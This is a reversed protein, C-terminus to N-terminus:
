AGLNFHKEATEHKKIDRERIGEDANYDSQERRLLEIINLDNDFSIEHVWDGGKKHTSHVYAYPGSNTKCGAKLTREAQDKNGTSGVGIRRIGSTGIVGEETARALDVEDEEIIVYLHTKEMKGNGRVELEQNGEFIRKFQREGEKREGKEAEGLGGDPNLLQSEPSYAM